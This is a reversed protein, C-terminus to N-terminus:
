VLICPGLRIDQGQQFDTIRDTGGGRGCVFVDSGPGGTLTNTGANGAVLDNGSGGQVNDDGDGGTVVDNGQGGSIGDNGANGNVFDSGGCGNMRDNGGRGNMLNNGNTGILTDDGNTGAILTNSSTPVSCDTDPPPTPIQPLPQPTVTVTFTATASNGASDTATCTVQTNGVPFTSGSAPTCTPTVQGDVADTATVTYTVVAGEPGTAEVPAPPTARIVPPTTDPPPTVTVTFTQSASNGAADTAVCTVQNTGVPFTSGSAPTCTPTVQGDRDDTAIVTYMVVAGQPGTAQVPAPPTVQIVPPITDPVTCQVNGTFTGRIQNNSMSFQIPVNNGCNGSITFTDGISPVTGSGSGSVCLAPAPGNSSLVGTLQYSTTSFTGGTVSGIWTQSASPFQMTFQGSTISGGSGTGSFSFVANRATAGGCTFAPAPVQQASVGGTSQAMVINTTGSVMGASVLVLFISCVALLDRKL